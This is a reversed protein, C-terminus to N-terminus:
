ACEEHAVFEENGTGNGNRLFGEAGHRLGHDPMAARVEDREVVGDLGLELREHVRLIGDVERRAAREARHLAREPIDHLFFHQAAHVAGEGVLPVVDRQAAALLGGRELEFPALGDIGLGHALFERGAGVVGDRDDVVFGRAAAHAVEGGIM